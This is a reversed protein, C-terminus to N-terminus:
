REAGEIINVGDRKVKKQIIECVSWKQLVDIISPADVKRGNKDGFMVSDDLRLPEVKGDSARIVWERDHGDAYTLCTITIEHRQFTELGGYNRVVLTKDRFAIERPEQKYPQLVTLWLVLLAIWFTQYVVKAIPRITQDRWTLLSKYAFLSGFIVASWLLGQPNAAWIVIGISIVLFPYFEKKKKYWNWSLFVLGLAVLFWGINPFDPLIEVYRENM